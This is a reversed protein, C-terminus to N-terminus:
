TRVYKSMYVSVQMCAHMCAYMCVFLLGGGMGPLPSVGGNGCPPRPVMVMVPPTPNCAQLIYVCAYLIIYIYKCMCIYKYMCCVYM